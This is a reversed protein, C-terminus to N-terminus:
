GDRPEEEDVRRVSSDRRPPHRAHQDTPPSVVRQGIPIRPSGVVHEAELTDKVAFLRHKLPLAYRRRGLAELGHATSRRPTPTPEGRLYTYVITGDGYAELWVEATGVLDGTVNWRVGLLGRDDYTTLTLGPFWRRWQRTM